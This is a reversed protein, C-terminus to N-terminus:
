SGSLGIVSFKQFFYFTPACEAVKDVEFNVADRRLVFLEDVFPVPTGNDYLQPNLAM